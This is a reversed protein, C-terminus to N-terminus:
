ANVTKETKLRQEELEKQAQELQKEIKAELEGEGMRRFPMWKPWGTDKSPSSGTGSSESANHSNTQSHQQKQHGDSNGFVGAGLVAETM